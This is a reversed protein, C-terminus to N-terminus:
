QPKTADDKSDNRLDVLMKMEIGFEKTLIELEIQRIMDASAPYQDTDRYARAQSNLYVTGQGTFTTSAGGTFTSNAAYPVGNYVIPNYKVLYVTGSVISGSSIPTSEILKGDEPNEWFAVIRLKEKYDNIYMSTNIRWYSKFMRNTHGEPEYSWMSMRRPYYQKTGCASILYYIGLDQNGDKSILPITKPIFAKGIDCNCYTISPDDAKNVKHFSIMGGDGLWTQDLINTKAYQDIKLQAAVQDVKYSLWDEDYRSEDSRSFKTAIALISDIINKATAM